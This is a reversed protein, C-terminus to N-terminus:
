YLAVPPPVVGGEGRNFVAQLNKLSSSFRSRKAKISDEMVLASGHSFLHPFFVHSIFRFVGKFFSLALFVQEHFLHLFLGPPKFGLFELSLGLRIGANAIRIDGADHWAGLWSGFILNMVRSFASCSQLPMRM